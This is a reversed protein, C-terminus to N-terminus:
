WADTIVESVGLNHELVNELEVILPLVDQVEHWILLKNAKHLEILKLINPEVWLPEPDLAAAVKCEKCRSFSILCSFNHLVPYIEYQNIWEIFVLLNCMKFGGYKEVIVNEVLAICDDL